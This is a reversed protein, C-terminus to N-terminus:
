SETPPSAPREDVPATGEYYGGGSTQLDLVVALLYLALSLIGIGQGASMAIVLLLPHPFMFSATMLLMAVTTSIVAILVLRKIMARKM